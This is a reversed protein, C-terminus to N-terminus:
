GESGASRRSMAKQKGRRLELSGLVNAAWAVGEYDALVPRKQRIGFGAEFVFAKSYRKLQNLSRPSGSFSVKVTTDFWGIECNTADPSSPTDIDDELSKWTIAAEDIKATMATAERPQTAACACVLGCVEFIGHLFLAREGSSRASRTIPWIVSSSFICITWPIPHPTRRAPAGIGARDFKPAPKM